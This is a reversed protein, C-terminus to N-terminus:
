GYYHEGTLQQANRADAIMKDAAMKSQMRLMKIYDEHYEAINEVVDKVPVQLIYKDPKGEQPDRVLITFVYMPMDQEQIVFFEDEVEYENLTKAITIHRM